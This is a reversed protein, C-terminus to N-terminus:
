KNIKTLDHFIRFLDTYVRFIYKLRGSVIDLNIMM